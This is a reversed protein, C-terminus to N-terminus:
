RWNYRYRNRLARSENRMQAREARVIAKDREKWAREQAKLRYVDSRDRAESRARARSEAREAIDRTRDARIRGGAYSSCRSWGSAPSHRWCEGGTQANAASATALAAVAAFSLMLIRSRM